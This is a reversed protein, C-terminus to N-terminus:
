VMPEFDRVIDLLQEGLERAESVTMVKEFTYGGDVYSMKIVEQNQNREYYEKPFLGVSKVEFM